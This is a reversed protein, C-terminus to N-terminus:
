YRERMLDIRTFRSVKDILERNAKDSKKKDGLGGATSFGGVYDLKGNWRYIRAANNIAESEAKVTDILRGTEDDREWINVPINSVKIYDTDNDPICIPIITYETNM